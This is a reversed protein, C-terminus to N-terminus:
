RQNHRAADFLQEVAQQTIQQLQREARRREMQILARHRAREATADGVLTLALVAALTLCVALQLLSLASM